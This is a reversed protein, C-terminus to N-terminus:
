RIIRNLIKNFSFISKKPKIYQPEPITIDEGNIICQPNNTFLDNAMKKSYEKSIEDYCSRMHTSKMQSSHSDSAIIHVMNHELLNYATERVEKGYKGAFSGANCQMICEKEILRYVKNPHKIIERYREPHAIIPRIGALQMEFITSEVYQPFTEYMPLEILMYNKNNIAIIKNAEYLDVINPSLLVEMGLLVDLKIGANRIESNLQDTLYEIRSVDVESESDIYHPTAIITAIGDREEMRSIYISDNLDKAGDDIGPLIHCHMDLM